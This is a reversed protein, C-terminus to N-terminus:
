HLQYDYSHGDQPHQHLTRYSQTLNLLTPIIGKERETERETERKRDRETKKDREEREM